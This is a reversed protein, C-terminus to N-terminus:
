KADGDYSQSCIIKFTRNSDNDSSSESDEAIVRLVKDPPGSHSLKNKRGGGSTTSATSTSGTDSLSEVGEQFTFIEM